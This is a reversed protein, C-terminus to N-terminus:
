SLNMHQEHRYPNGSTRFEYRSNMQFATVENRRLALLLSSGFDSAALRDAGVSSPPRPRASNRPNHLSLFRVFAIFQKDFHHWNDVLCSPLPKMAINAM